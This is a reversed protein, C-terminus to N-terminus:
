NGAWRLAEWERRKVLGDLKTKGSYVWRRFEQQIEVDAKQEKIKRCLTSQKFKTIGLNFVFDVVADLQYRETLPLNLKEIQKVCEKVDQKLAAEAWGVNVKMGKTVGSTHGYGITWVGAPCKYAELKCGEFRRIANYLEETVNM